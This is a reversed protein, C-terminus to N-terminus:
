RFSESPGKKRQRRRNKVMRKRGKKKKLLASNLDKERGTKVGDESRQRVLTKPGTGFGGKGGRGRCTDLTATREEGRRLLFPGEKKGGRQSRPLLATGRRGPRDRGALQIGTQGCEGRKACTSFSSSRKKKKRTVGL